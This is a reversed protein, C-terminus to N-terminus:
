EEASNGASGSGAFVANRAGRMGRAVRARKQASTGSALSTRRRGKGREVTFREIEQANDM